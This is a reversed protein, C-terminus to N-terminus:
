TQVIARIVRWQDVKKELRSGTNAPSTSPLYEMRIERSKGLTPAILRLFLRKAKTGNLLIARIQPHKELFGEIDNERETGRQIRSDLSGGRVAADLVDWLAIRNTLLLERRRKHDAPVDCGLVQGLIPWFLNRSNAYYQQKAISEAGPLTGLILVAADPGAVPPLGKVEV